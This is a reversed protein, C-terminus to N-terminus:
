DNKWFLFEFIGGRGWIEGGRGGERRGERNEREM